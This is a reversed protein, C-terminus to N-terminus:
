FQRLLDRSGFGICRVVIEHLEIQFQKGKIWECITDPLQTVCDGAVVGPIDGKGFREFQGQGCQILPEGFCRPRGAVKQRRATGLLAFGACSAGLPDLPNPSTLFWSIWAISRHGLSGYM